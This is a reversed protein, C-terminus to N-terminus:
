RAACPPPAMRLQAAHLRRGQIRCKGWTHLPHVCKHPKPTVLFPLFKYLLLWFHHWRAVVHCLPRSTQSEKGLARRAKIALM